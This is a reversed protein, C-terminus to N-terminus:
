LLYLNRNKTFNIETIIFSVICSGCRNKCCSVTQNNPINIKVYESVM